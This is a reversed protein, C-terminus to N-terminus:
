KVRICSPNYKSNLHISLFHEIKDQLIKHFVKEVSPFYVSFHQLLISLVNRDSFRRYLSITVHAISYKLEYSRSATNTALFAGFLLAKLRYLILIYPALQDLGEVCDNRFWFPSVTPSASSNSFKSCALFVRASSPRINDETTMGTNCLVKWILRILMYLVIRLFPLCRM